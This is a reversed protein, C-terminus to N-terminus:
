EHTGPEQGRQSRARQGPTAVPVRHEDGRTILGSELAREGSGISPHRQHHVVQLLQEGGTAVVVRLGREEVRDNSGGGRGVARGGDHDREPRVVVAAEGRVRRERPQEGLTLQEDSRHGVGLDVGRDLFWGAPRRQREFGPEGVRDGGVHGVLRARERQQGRRQQLGPHAAAAADEGVGAIVVGATDAARHGPEGLVGVPLECRVLLARAPPEQQSEGLGAFAGVVDAPTHREDLESIRVHELRQDRPTEDGRAVARGFDRVLRQQPLPGAQPAPQLLVAVTAPEVVADRGGRDVPVGGPAIGGLQVAARAEFGREVPGGGMGTLRIRELALKELGGVRRM